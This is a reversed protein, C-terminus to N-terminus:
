RHKVGKRLIFRVDDHFVARKVAVSFARNFGNKLHLVLSAIGNAPQNRTRKVGNRHRGAEAIRQILRRLLFDFDGIGGLMAAPIIHHTHAAIGHRGGEVVAIQHKDLLVRAYLLAIDADKDEVALAEDLTTNRPSLM